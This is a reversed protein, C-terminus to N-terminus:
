EVNRENRIYSFFCFVFLSYICIRRQRDRQKWLFFSWTKTKTKKTKLKGTKSTFINYTLVSTINITATTVFFQQTICMNLLHKHCCCHHHHQTAKFILATPFFPAPIPVLSCLLCSMLRSHVLWSLLLHYIALHYGELNNEGERWVAISM